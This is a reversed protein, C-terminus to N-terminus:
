SNLSMVCKLKWVKDSFRTGDLISFALVERHGACARREFTM